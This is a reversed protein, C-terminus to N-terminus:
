EGTRFKMLNFEVLPTGMNEVHEPHFHVPHQEGGSCDTDNCVYVSGEGNIKIDDDVCYCCFDGGAGPINEVGYQIIHKCIKM